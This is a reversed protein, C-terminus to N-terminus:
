GPERPDGPPGSGTECYHRARFRFLRVPDDPRVGAKIRAIVVQQAASEVGPVGPLLGGRRRTGQVVLGHIRPDLGALDEVPELDELLSVEYRLEALEDPRVPPYRPDRTAALIASALLEDVLRPRAPIFRGTCGRLRGEMRLSVFAAGPELLLRPLDPPPELHHGTRVYREVAERVLRVAFAGVEPAAGDPM